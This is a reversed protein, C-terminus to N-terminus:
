DIKASLNKRGFLREYERYIDSILLTRFKRVGFTIALEFKPFIPQFYFQIQQQEVVTKNKKLTPYIFLFTRYHRQCRAGTKNYLRPRRYSGACPCRYSGACKQRTTM